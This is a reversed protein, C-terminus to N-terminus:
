VEYMDPQTGLKMGVGILGAGGVVKGMEPFLEQAGLEELWFDHSLEQNKGAGGGRQIENM